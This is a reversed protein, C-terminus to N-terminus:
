FNSKKDLRVVTETTYELSIYLEDLRMMFIKLAEYDMPNENMINNYVKYVILRLLEFHKKYNTRIGDKYFSNLEENFEIESEITREPSYIQLAKNLFYSHSKLAVKVGGRKATRALTHPGPTTRASKRASPVHSGGGNKGKITNKKTAKKKNGKKNKKTYKKSM